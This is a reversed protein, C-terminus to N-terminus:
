LLGPAVGAAGRSWVSDSLASVKLVLCQFHEFLLHLEVDGQFYFALSSHSGRIVPYLCVSYLCFAKLALNPARENPRIYFRLQGLSVSNKFTIKNRTESCKTADVGYKWAEAGERSGPFFLNKLCCLGM